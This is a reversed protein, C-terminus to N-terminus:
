QKLRVLFSDYPQESTLHVPGFEVEEQFSGLLLVDGDPSVSVETAYGGKPFTRRRLEEGSAGLDLLVLRGSGNEDSYNSAVLFGGGPRSAVRPEEMQIGQEFDVRLEVDGETSAVVLFVGNATVSLDHPTRQGTVYLRGDDGRTLSTMEDDLSEGVDRTFLAAGRDHSSRSVRTLTWCHHVARDCLFASGPEHQPGLSASVRPENRNRRAPERAKM